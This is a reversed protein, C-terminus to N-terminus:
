PPEPFSNEALWAAIVGLSYLPRGARKIYPLAKGNSRWNTLTKPALGMLEAAVPERVMGEPSVYAGRDRCYAKLEDLRAAIADEADAVHGSGKCCPCIM